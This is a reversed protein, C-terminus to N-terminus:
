PLPSGLARASRRSRDRLEVITGHVHAADPGVLHAITRAVDDPELWGYRDADPRSGATLQTRVAGPCVANITVGLAEVEEALSRTLGV